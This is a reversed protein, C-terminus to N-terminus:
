LLSKTDQVTIEDGVGIKSTLCVDSQTEGRRQGLVESIVM